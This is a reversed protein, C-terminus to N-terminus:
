DLLSWNNHPVEQWTFPVVKFLWRASGVVNTVFVESWFELLRGMQMHLPWYCRFGTSRLQTGRASLSELLAVLICYGVYVLFTM